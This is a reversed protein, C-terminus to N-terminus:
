QCSDRTSKNEALSRGQESKTTMWYAMESKEMQPSTFGEVTGNILAGNEDYMKGTFTIDAM